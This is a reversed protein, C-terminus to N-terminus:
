GRSANPHRAVTALTERRGAAAPEHVAAEGAPCPGQGSAPLRAPSQDSPSQDSSLRHALMQEVRPRRAPEPGPRPAGAPRPARGRADDVAAPHAQRRQDSDVPAPPDARLVRLGRGALEALEARRAAAARQPREALGLRPGPAPLVALPFTVAHRYEPQRASYASPSVGGLHVLHVRPCGTRDPTRRLLSLTISGRSSSPPM